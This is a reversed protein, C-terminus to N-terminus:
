QKIQFFFGGHNYWLLFTGTLSGSDGHQANVGEIGASREIVHQWLAPGFSVWQTRKLSYVVNGARDLEFRPPLSVFEYLADMM